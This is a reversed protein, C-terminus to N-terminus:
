KELISAALFINAGNNSFLCFFWRDKSIVLTTTTATKLFFVLNEEANLGTIIELKLMMCRTLVSPLCLHQQYIWESHVGRHLINGIVTNGASSIANLM